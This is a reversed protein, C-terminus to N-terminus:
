LSRRVEEAARYGSEVAGDFYGNWHVATETGAWHLPGVAERLVPGFATWAGPM